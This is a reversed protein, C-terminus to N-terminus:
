EKYMINDNFKECAQKFLRGSNFKLRYKRKYLYKNGGIVIKDSELYNVVKKIMDYRNIIKM